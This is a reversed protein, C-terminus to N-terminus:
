ALSKAFFHTADPNDNYREVAVWGAGRYLALAPELVGNTDLRAEDLGLALARQELDALLRTALGGGRAEPAVWMRKIEAVATGDDLELTRVGGCAVVRGGSRGLVFVDAPDDWAVAESAIWPAPDFPHPFERALETFYATVAAVAAPDRADVAEFTTSAALLLREARDLHDALRARHRPALPALLDAVLEDSRRDLEDWEVRGAATLVARRRRRDGPHTRQEVLGDQALAALQRSLYGADLDLRRRLERVDAGDPGVEFLLRAQGVPRGRGLFREELVGLRSTWSRNFRRLRAVADIDAGM